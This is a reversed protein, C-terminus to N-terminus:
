EAEAPEQTSYRLCFQAAQGVSQGRPGRDAGLPLPCAVSLIATRTHGVATMLRNSIGCRLLRRRRKKSLARDV